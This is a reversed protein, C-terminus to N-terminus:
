FESNEKHWIVSLSINEVKNRQKGAYTRTRSFRIDRDHENLRERMSRGTEGAIYVTPVSGNWNLNENQWPLHKHRPYVLAAKEAPLISITDHQKLNKFAKQMDKTINPKPPKAQRLIGTVTRRVTDAQKSDLARIASEVKTVMETAPINSPNTFFQKGIENTGEHEAM